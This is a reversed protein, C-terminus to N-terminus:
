PTTTIRLQQHMPVLIPSLYRSPYAGHRKVHTGVNRCESALTFVINQETMIVFYTSPQSALSLIASPRRKGFM